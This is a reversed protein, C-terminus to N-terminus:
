KAPVLMDILMQQREEILGWNEEVLVEAIDSEAGQLFEFNRALTLIEKALSSKKLLKDGNSWDM